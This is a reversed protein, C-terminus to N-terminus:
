KPCRRGGPSLLSLGHNICKLARSRLDVV